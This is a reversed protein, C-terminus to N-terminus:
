APGTVAGIILVVTSVLGAPIVESSLEFASTRIAQNPESSTMHMAACLGCRTFRSAYSHIKDLRAEGMSYLVLV